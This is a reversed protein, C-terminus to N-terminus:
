KCCNPYLIGCFFEMGVIAFSYYFILLTLGLSPLLPLPAPHSPPPCHARRRRCGPRRPGGSSIPPPMGRALNVAQSAGAPFPAEDKLDPSFFPEFSSKRFLHGKVLSEGRVQSPLSM